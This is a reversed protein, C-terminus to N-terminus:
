EMNDNFLVVNEADNILTSLVAWRYNEAEGDVVRSAHAVVFFPPPVRHKVTFRGDDDTTACFPSPTVLMWGLAATETAARFQEMAADGHGAKALVEANRSHARSAEWPHAFYWAAQERYDAKSYVFVKVGGLKVDGADATAVFVQGSVVQEEGAQETVAPPAAFDYEVRALEPGEGGGARVDPQLPALAQRFEQPLDDYRVAAAGEAHRVLVTNSSFSRALALKLTKGSGLRLEPVPDDMLPAAVVGGPGILALLFLIPTKM